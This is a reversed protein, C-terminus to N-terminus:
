ANNNLPCRNRKHGVKRCNGCRQPPRENASGAARPPASPTAINTENVLQLRIQMDEVTIGGEYAIQVSNIANKRQKRGNEAMVRTMNAKLIAHNNALKQAGKSVQELQPAVRYLIVPTILSSAM